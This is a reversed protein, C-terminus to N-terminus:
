RARAPFRGRSMPVSGQGEGGEEGWPRLRPGWSQNREAAPGTPPAACEASLSCFRKKKEEESEASMGSSVSSLNDNKERQAERAEEDAATQPEDLVGSARRVATSVRRGADAM